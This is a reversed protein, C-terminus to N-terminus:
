GAGRDGRLLDAVLERAEDLQGGVGLALAVAIRSNPDADDGLDRVLTATESHAKILDDDEIAAVIRQLAPM